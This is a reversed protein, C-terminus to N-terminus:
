LSSVQNRSINGHGQTFNQPERYSKWSAIAETEFHGCNIEWSASSACAIKSTEEELLWYSLIRGARLSWEEIKHAANWERFTGKTQFTPPFHSQLLWLKCKWHLASKLHGTHELAKGELLARECCLFPTCPMRPGLMFGGSFLILFRFCTTVTKTCYLRSESTETPDM